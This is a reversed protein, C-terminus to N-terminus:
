AKYFGLKQIVINVLTQDDNTWQTYDDGSIEVIQTDVMVDYSFLHVAVTVQKFLELNIVRVQVGTIKTTKVRDEPQIPIVHPQNNDVDLASLVNVNM